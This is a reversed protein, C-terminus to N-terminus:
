NGTVLGIFVVGAECFLITEMWYCLPRYCDDCVIVWIGIHVLIGLIIVCSKLWKANHNNRVRQDLLLGYQWCCLSHSGESIIPGRRPERSGSRHIPQVGRKYARCRHGTTVWITLYFICKGVEVTSYLSNSVLSLLNCIPVRQAKKKRFQWNKAISPLQRQNM